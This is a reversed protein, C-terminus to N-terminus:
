VVRNSMSYSNRLRTAFAVFAAVIRRWNMRIRCITTAARQLFVVNLVCLYVRVLHSKRGVFVIFNFLRFLLLIDLPIKCPNCTAGGCDVGTEDGNQLGDDCTSATRCFVAMADSGVVVVVVVVVAVLALTLLKRGISLCLSVFV